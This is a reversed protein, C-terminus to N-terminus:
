PQMQIGYRHLIAAMKPLDQPMERVETMELFFQDIAGGITWALFRVPQTSNNRYGHAVGAPVHAFDDPEITLEEDGVQMIMCGELMYYSEEEIAHTHPPVGGGPPVEVTMVAMRNASNTSRLKLCVRDSLVQMAEGAQSRVITM